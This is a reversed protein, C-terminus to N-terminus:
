SVTLTPKGNVKVGVDATLEGEVPAGPSFGTLFGDFTWIATGTCTNLELQWAPMNCGDEEFDGLLGTGGIQQHIAENPDWGITFSVEGGDALGPLFERYGDASDHDTVDITGRSINPGSIDKVQGVASYSTGGM